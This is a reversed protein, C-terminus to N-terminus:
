NNNVKMALLAQNEPINNLFSEKWDLDSIQEIQAQIERCGEEIVRQFKESAGTFRYVEACTLFVLIPLEFGRCGKEHLFEDIKQTLQAAKQQDGDTLALRILGARAELAQGTMGLDDFGGQAIQFHEAAQSTNGAKELALGLYFHRSALGRQDCLAELRGSCRNLTQMADQPHDLRWEALGLNLLGYAIVRRAELKRAIDLAETLMEHATSFQGFSLYFYGLNILGIAEGLRDGQQQNIQKQQHMFAVSQTIDGVAQYYLAINTLARAIINPDTSAETIELAHAVLASASEMDGEVTLIAIQMPLVQAQMSLDDVRQASKQAKELSKLAKKNDGERHAQSGILFYVESLLHDDQLQQAIELLDQDDKQREQRHGLVGMAESHGLTAEWRLRLDAEPIIELAQEFLLKAEGMSFLNAARKGARILWDAALDLSGGQAYHYAILALHEELREGANAEIWEAVQRHYTRRHKLLVTDYTADRVLAHKFLYEQNGAISSRELQFILGRQRLASLHSQIQEPEVPEGSLECLIGDWFTRGIVAAVQLASKEQPSLRDIRAQLIGVLTHPVHIAKLKELHLHWQDEDTDIVGEDILMKILEEIFFPNGAAADIVLDFFSDPVDEVRFLIDEILTRSRLQSLRKLNLRTFGSLGEGWNERREFFLMRSTCVILLKSNEEARLKTGLETILNLSSDDMWHLDEFMLILPEEVKKRFFNVLYLLAIESFSPNGVLRMVAPSSKFDFGVLQGVLDAQEEDLIPHMGRRFKRLAQTSSDSELIDFHKAFLNRFIHYPISQSSTIARGRLLTPEEPQSSAWGAFAMLLRTKGIGAEGAILALSTEGGRIADEYINRLAAMEPERGIMPTEIGEIGRRPQSLQPSKSAKVLYSQVLQQFGKVQMPEQPEVDFLGHVHRYTAHSILVSNEPANQELRAALNVAEGLAIYELHKEPNVDGVVVLGTNIGVRVKFNKIEHIESLQQEYKRIRNVISLGALVAREPDDERSVPSGFYALVGDGMVQVVTGKYEQIPELLCPYARQMMGLLIEPDLNESLKSSSVIDAFLITVMRREYAESQIPLPSPITKQSTSKTQKQSSFAEQEPIQAGCQHCFKAGVDSDTGCIPCTVKLQMGCYACFSADNKNESHCNPCEM